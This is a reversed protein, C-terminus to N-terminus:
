QKIFCKAEYVIGECKVNQEIGNTVILNLKDSESRM